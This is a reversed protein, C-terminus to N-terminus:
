RKKVLKYKKMLAHIFDNKTRMNKTPMSGFQKQQMAWNHEQRDWERIEAVFKQWQNMNNKSM